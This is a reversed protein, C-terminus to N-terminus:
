LNLVRKLAQYGAASAKIKLRNDLTILQQQKEYAEIRTIYDLNVIASRHVRVFKGAPLREAFYKMTQEKLFKGTPTHIMVYDGEAQIAVIEPVGILQIQSGNKVAVHDLVETSPVVPAVPEVDPRAEEEEDPSEGDPEQPVSVGLVVAMYTLLGIMIKVPIVPLFLYISGSPLIAWLLLLEWGIWCGVFVFGLAGYNIWRQLAPLSGYGTFRVALRLLVCLGTLGVGAVAADLWLWGARVPLIPGFVAAFLGSALVAILALLLFNLFRNRNMMMKM